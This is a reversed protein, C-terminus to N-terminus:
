KQGEALRALETKPVLRKRGVQVSRIRGDRAWARLTNIGIKGENADYLEPITYFPSNRATM